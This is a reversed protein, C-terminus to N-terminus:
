ENRWAFQSDVVFQVAVRWVGTADKRCAKAM